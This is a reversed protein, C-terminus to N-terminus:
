GPSGVAYARIVTQTLGTGAADAVKVRLSVHGPTRPNPVMATWGSGTGVVPVPRWTTGDDGSMELRVQEVPPRLAGPTRELRMPLPTTSGPVARNLDDLGAPAYRMAMLPLPREGATHSSRVTWVTDVTTSLTSHPVERRMSSSITYTAAGAPLEARLVCAQADGLVCGALDAKALVQGKATVTVAGTAAADTGARGAGGDAFLGGAA